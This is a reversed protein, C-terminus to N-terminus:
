CLLPAGLGNRLAHESTASKQHLQGALENIRICRMSQKRGTACYRHQFREERPRPAEEKVENLNTPRSEEETGTQATRLVGPSTSGWLAPGGLVLLLCCLVATRCRASSAEAILLNSVSRIHMRNRIMKWGLQLPREVTKKYPRM